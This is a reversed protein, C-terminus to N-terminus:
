VAPIEGHSLEPKVVLHWVLISAPTLEVVCLAVLGLGLWFQGLALAVGAASAIAVTHIASEALVAVSSTPVLHTKIWHWVKRLTRM